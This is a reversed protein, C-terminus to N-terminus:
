HHGGKPHKRSIKEQAKRLKSLDLECFYCYIEDPTLSRGCQPCRDIHHGHTM